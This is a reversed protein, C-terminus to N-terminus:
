EDLVSAIRDDQCNAADEFPASQVGRCDQVRFTTYKPEKLHYYRDVSSYAVVDWLVIINVRLNSIDYIYIYIYIYSM